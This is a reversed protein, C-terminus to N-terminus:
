TLDGLWEADQARRRSRLFWNVAFVLVLGILTILYIGYEIFQRVENSM